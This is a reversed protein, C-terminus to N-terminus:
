VSRKSFQSALRVDVDRGGSWMAGSPMAETDHALCAEGWRTVAILGIVGEGGFREAAKVAQRCAEELGAGRRLEEALRLSAMARMIIEGFGTASVAVNEDAYFGAGIVPTDGVRGPLKLWIGGTSTAAALRGDASLAVAGVTDGAVGYKEALRRLRRWRFAEGSRRLEALMEEYRERIHPPTEGRPQLGLVEALRDAGKGAVLLHDTDLAVHLALEVPNRPYRTAAVAGVLGYSTMLGADMEAEGLLNLASGSGANLVGSDELVKVAAVAAEHPPSNGTLASYGANLSREIVELAKEARKEWGPRRTWRGAGGHVLIAPSGVMIVKSFV